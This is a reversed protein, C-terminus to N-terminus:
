IPRKGRCSLIVMGAMLIILLCFVRRAAIERILLRDWASMSFTNEDFKQSMENIWGEHIFSRLEGYCRLGRKQVNSICADLVCRMSFAALIGNKDEPIHSACAECYKRCSAFTMSHTASSRYQYYRYWVKDVFVARSISRCLDSLFVRDEAYALSTDFRLKGLSSTKILKSVPGRNIGAPINSGKVPHYAIFYDALRDLDRGSEFLIQEDVYGTSNVFARKRFQYSVKGMVMDAETEKAVSLARALCSEDCLEDDPDVFMCYEGRARALGFNRASSVGGNKKHLVIIRDDKLAVEDCHKACERESGDDVLIIEFQKFTQSFLSELCRHLLTKSTNFVPIIISVCFNQTM